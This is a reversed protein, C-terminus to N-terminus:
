VALPSVRKEVRSALYIGCLILIGGIVEFLTPKDKLVLYALIVTGVPEGLLAISVYATSLFRLAWNFLSHGILQPIVALAILWIWNFPNYVYLSTSTFGTFLLLFIASILYVLFVYALLSLHERVKRGIMLYGAAFLAGALAFLNGLIAKGGLFHEVAIWLFSFPFSCIDSLVVIVSGAFAMGLGLYIGKTIKEKLLIPSFLVVWLPTTTVLVVSSAVSTYELSTIWFAFHCALLFGSLIILKWERPKIRIIESKVKWVAFPAIFLSALLMRYTAIVLSPIGEGQIIRIFVSATSIAMIAIAIIFFPFVKLNKM